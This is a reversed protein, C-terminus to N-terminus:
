NAPLTIDAQDRPNVIWTNYGPGNIPRLSGIVDPLVKGQYQLPDFTNIGTTVLCISTATDFM